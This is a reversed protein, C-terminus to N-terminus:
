DLCYGSDRVTKIFDNNEANSLARRIRNIHVDVTRPNIQYKKGWVYEIIDIRSFINKPDTLFLQLIKFETPGLHIQRDGILVRYTALNMTLNGHELIKTQFVPNAKRILLKIAEIIEYPTFQKKLVEVLSSKFDYHINESCIILFPLAAISNENVNKILDKIRDKDFLDSVIIINPQHLGVLSIVDNYEPSKVANFWYRELINCITTSLVNDPIVVLIKPPMKKVM